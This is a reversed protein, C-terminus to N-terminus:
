LGKKEAGGKLYGRKYSEIWELRCPGQARQDTFAGDKEGRMAAGYGVLIAEQLTLQKQKNGSFYGARYDAICTEQQEATRGSCSPGANESICQSAHEFGKSYSDSMTQNENNNASPGAPIPDLLAFMPAVQLDKKEQRVREIREQEIAFKYAAVKEAELEAFSKQRVPASAASPALLANGMLGMTVLGAADGASIQGQMGASIADGIHKDLQHGDATSSSDSAAANQNVCSYRACSLNQARSVESVRSLCESESNFPGESGSTSPMYQRPCSSFDANAMWSAYVRTAILLFLVLAVGQKKM